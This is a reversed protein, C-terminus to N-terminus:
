NPTNSPTQEMPHRNLYFRAMKHVAILRKKRVVETWNEAMQKILMEDLQVEFQGLVKLFDDKSCFAKSETLMRQFFEGMNRKLKKQKPKMGLFKSRDVLIASFDVAMPEERTTVGAFTVKLNANKKTAKQILKLCSRSLWTSSGLDVEEIVDNGSLTKLLVEYNADNFPNGELHVIKLSQSARIGKAIFVVENEALRSFLLSM